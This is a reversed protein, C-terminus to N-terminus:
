HSSRPMGYDQDTGGVRCLKIPLSPSELDTLGMRVDYSQGDVQGCESENVAVIEM